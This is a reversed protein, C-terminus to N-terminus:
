SGHLEAVSEGTILTTPLSVIETTKTPDKIHKDLLEVAGSGMQVFPQSVTTLRPSVLSCMSLNDFGTVSLDEPVRIGMERALKVINLAIYDNTAAIATPPESLATFRTLMARISERLSESGAVEQDYFVYNYDFPVLDHVILEDAILIKHDNMAQVYGHFRDSRSSSEFTDGSVFAIRRHGRSIVHKVISYFGGRNDSAVVSADVGFVRRDVLVFPFSRVIMRNYMEQSSRTSYPYIIAGVAGSEIIEGILNKEMDLPGTEPSEEIDISTVSLTYGMQRCAAEVGQLVEMNLAVKTVPAPFVIAVLPKVAYVSGGNNEKWHTRTNVFTGKARVRSVYGRNELEKVARMATIRSTRYEEMLQKETPIRAGEPYTGDIIRKELAQFIRDYLPSKTKDNM